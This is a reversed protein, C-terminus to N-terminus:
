IPIYRSYGPNYRFQEFWAKMTMDSGRFTMKMNRVEDIRKEYAYKDHKRKLWHLGLCIADAIDHKREFSHYEALVTQDSIHYTAINMTAEKRREYTMHNIGFYKHMSNPSVLECKNRYKSFILQEIAVLGQPPQREIIIGDVGDFIHEYKWFVHELWDTFTKTHHLHCTEHTVGEPHHFETIDIMDVGFVREFNYEEDFIIGAFGLHVIGIDICLITYGKQEESQFIRGSLDELYMNDLDAEIGVSGQDEDDSDIFYITDSYSYESKVDQETM